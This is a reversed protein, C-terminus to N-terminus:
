RPLPSGSPVFLRVNARRKRAASRVRVAASAVSALNDPTATAASRNPAAMRSQDEVGCEVPAAPRQRAASRRRRAGFPLHAPAPRPSARAGFPSIRRRRAPLRAPASRPSAGAGLASIRSCLGPSADVRDGPLLSGEDGSPPLRFYRRHPCPELMSGRTGRKPSLNPCAINGLRARPNARPGRPRISERFTTSRRGCRPARRSCRQRADVDPRVGLRPSRTVRRRDPMRADGGRDVSIGAM